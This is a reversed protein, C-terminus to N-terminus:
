DSNRGGTKKDLGFLLNILETRGSGVLGILGLIEGRHLKFSIEPVLDSKLNSVTLRESGVPIKEKPFKDKLSEGLMDYIVSEITVNQIQHVAVVKGERLITLRDCIGLIEELRHSIYVISMGTKKLENIIEFLVKAEDRSLSATPEDMFLIRCKQSVAKAIATIYRYAMSTGSILQDVLKEPVGFKALSEASTKRLAKWDILGFKNRPYKQGFLLSEGVTFYPVQYLEQHIFNLGLSTAKQASGINIETEDIFIRGEDKTYVGALIKILTSKGAGNEGILGHVEGEAVEFSIRDLATVRFRKTLEEVRLLPQGSM